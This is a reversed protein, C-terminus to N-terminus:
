KIITIVLSALSFVISLASIAFSEASGFNSSNSKSKNPEVYVVDNQELYYAPSYIINKDNLNVTIYKKTGDANERLVKVNDRRGYISMDGALALADFITLRENVTEFKGPRLVEGLVNVSYNIIRITVIPREKSFASALKDQLLIELGKRDLGSVKLKGFVPFDINGDNDVLYSQLTPTTTLLMQTTMPAIQPVVLNYIRSADPESTVVTISLLDKPKIRANFIGTAQKELKVSDAATDIKQFYAINKLPSCSSLLLIGLFLCLTLKTIKTMM